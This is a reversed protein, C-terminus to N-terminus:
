LIKLRGDTKFGSKKSVGNERIYELFKERVYMGTDKKPFNELGIINKGGKKELEEWRKSLGQVYHPIAFTYSKEFCKELATDNITVDKVMYGDKDITYRIERSFHLFGREFNPEADRNLRYCNSDIIEALSKGTLTVLVITDAYPMLRYVDIINIVNRSQNFFTIMSTGDIATFDIDFGEERVADTLADTIFNAMPNECSDKMNEFYKLDKEGALDLKGVSDFLEHTAKGAITNSYSSNFVPSDPLVGTRILTTRILKNQDSIELVSKGLFIGNYGAQVVPINNIINRLELGHINLFDHTHGGIILDIKQRSLKSALELDGAIRVAAFASGLKYGLHSLIIVSDCEAALRPYFDKVSKVPDTISFISGDRSRIQGPTTLGIIGIRVGKIVIVMGPFVFGDLQGSHQLNASLVPFDANNEISKKLTLLGADFDHNGLVAADMRALSYATYAPHAMFNEGNYGALYDMPSGTSDDGASLFLVGKSSDNKSTAKDNEVTNVIKSFVPVTSYNDDFIYVNGHFDNIHFIDLYFPNESLNRRRAPFVSADAISFNWDVAFIQREDNSRYKKIGM